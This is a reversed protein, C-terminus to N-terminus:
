ICSISEYNVAVVNMLLRFVENALEAVLVCVSLSMSGMMFPPSDPKM